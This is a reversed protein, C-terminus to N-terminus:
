PNWANNNKGDYSWLALDMAGSVAAASYGPDGEPIITGQCIKAHGDYFLLNAKGMHRPLGNGPRAFRWAAPPSAGTYDGALGGATWLNTNGIAEWTGNGNIGDALIVTAAPATIQPISYSWSSLGSNWCNNYLYSVAVNTTDSPCKMVQNSKLYPQITWAWYSGPPGNPQAGWGNWVLPYKEDNDQSYQIISVGIQKLNSQCSSTRAKERAKAFVPFLIAALIAIIAIVVLLEILTFGRKARKAVMLEM